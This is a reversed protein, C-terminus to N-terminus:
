PNRSTPVHPEADLAQLAVSVKQRQALLYNFQADRGSIPTPYGSIEAAIQQRAAKLEVKAFMICESIDPIM